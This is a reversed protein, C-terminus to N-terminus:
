RYCTSGAGTQKVFLTLQSAHWTSHRHAHRRAHTRAHALRHKPMGGQKHIHSAPSSAPSPAHTLPSFEAPCLPHLFTWCHFHPSPFFYLLPLAPPPTATTPTNFTNTSSPLPTKCIVWQVKSLEAPGCVWMLTSGRYARPKTLGQGGGGHWEM